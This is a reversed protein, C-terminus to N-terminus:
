WRKLSVNRQRTPLNTGALDADLHIRIKSVSNTFESTSTGYRLSPYSKFFKSIACRCVKSPPKQPNWISNLSLGINFFIGGSPVQRSCCMATTTNKEKRWIRAYMTNENVSCDAIDTQYISFLRKCWKLAILYKWICFEKYVMYMYEGAIQPCVDSQLLALM